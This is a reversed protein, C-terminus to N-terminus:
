KALMPWLTSMVWFFLGLSLFAPYFPVPSASWWCSWAGLLFTFAALILFVFSM